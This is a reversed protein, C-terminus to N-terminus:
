RNPAFDQIGQPVSGGEPVESRGSVMVQDCIELRNGPITSWLQARRRQLVRGIELCAKGECNQRIFREWDAIAGDLHESLSQLQAATNECNRELLTRVAKMNNQQLEPLTKTADDCACQTRLRLRTTQACITLLKDCASEAQGLWERQVSTTGEHIFERRSAIISVGSVAVSLLFSVIPNAYLDPWISICFTPVALVLATLIWLATRM